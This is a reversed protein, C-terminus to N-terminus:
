DSFNELFQDLSLPYWDMLTKKNIDLTSICETLIKFFIDNKNNLTTYFLYAESKQENSMIDVYVKEFLTESLDDDNFNYIRIGFISDNNYIGM